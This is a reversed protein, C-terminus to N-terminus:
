SNVQGLVAAHAGEIVEFLGLSLDAASWGEFGTPGRSLIFGAVKGDRIVTVLSPRKDARTSM